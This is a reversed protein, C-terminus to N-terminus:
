EYGFKSNNKGLIFEVQKLEESTLNKKFRGIRFKHDFTTWDDSSTNTLFETSQKNSVKKCLEEQANGFPIEFKSFLDSIIKKPNMVFDEYRVEFFDEKPIKQQDEKIKTIISNWIWACRLLGRSNKQWVKWGEPKLHMWTEGENGKILSCTVDRGDRVLHIFKANPFMRKVFLIRLSDAASKIVLRKGPLLDRNLVFKAQDVLELTLDNETLVHGPDPPILHIKRLAETVQWYSKRVFMTAPFIKRILKWIRILFKRGVDQNAILENKMWINIENYFLCKPNNEFFKGFITTGSRPCGIIFIPDPEILIPELNNIKNRSM